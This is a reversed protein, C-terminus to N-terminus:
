NRIIPITFYFISGSGEVSEAWIKGGHAEVIHKSIALGLGTGSGSRARDTKYFREFIRTLDDVPIGIGSDQISFIVYNDQQNVRIVISGGAPTFKIANHLLNVFVQEIRKSDALIDPLNEPMETSLILGSRDLQLSLREIASNVIELPSVKQIVLPVRGSEIRSLELLESVMLSLADIETEMQNLFRRSASPDSEIIEQMTETLAKLSALPTRFEHSINSIFDQRITELQRMRTLNQFLLLHSGPLAQGLPTAICQLYLRRPLLELFSAQSDGSNKSKEWIEIIQHNRLAEVMSMGVVDKELVSFMNEAAPNILQIKGYKDVIIVGDTMESLVAALKSRESQIALIQNQLQKSMNNFAMTLQGIEDKSHPQLAGNFTGEAIQSAAKTLERLPKTTQQALWLALLIAIISANITILIITQRLHDISENIQSLPLALRVYGLIDGNDNVPVATYMMQFGVSRSFRISSGRGNLKAEMIEPRNSHNEMMLWDEHSDGLVVGDPSIVTVRVGLLEAWHKALSDIHPSNNQDIPYKSLNDASLETESFLKTKLENLYFEEIYKSLYIGLGILTILILTVYPISIRWFIKTNM